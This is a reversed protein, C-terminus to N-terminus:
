NRVLEVRLRKAIVKGDDDEYDGEEAVTEFGLLKTIKHSPGNEPVHAILKKAGSALEKEVIERLFNEGFYFKQLIPDINMAGLYREGEPLEKQGDFSSSRMFGVLNDLSKQPDNKNEKDFYVLHFRPNHKKHTEFDSLLRDQDEKSKHEISSRYMERLKEFLVENEALEKGGVTEMEVGKIGSVNQEAGAKKTAILLSAIIEIDMRSKELDSLLKQIKEESAQTGNELETSFKLIIQHAKRLLETQLNNPLDKESDKLIIRALEANEQEVLDVLQAIKQFILNASEKPLNEGISIIRNGNNEDLELSLFAKMRNSIEERAKGANVFEGTKDVDAKKHEKIYRLFQYQNRLGYDALEIGLDQSIKNCFPISELLKFLALDEIPNKFKILDKIKSPVKLSLNVSGINKSQYDQWGILNGRISYVGVTEPAINRALYDAQPKAEISHMIQSPAGYDRSEYNLKNIMEFDFEFNVVDFRDDHKSFIDESDDIGSKEEYEDVYWNELQVNTSYISHAFTRIFYSQNEDASIQKLFLKVKKILEPNEEDRVASEGIDGIIKVLKIKELASEAKSFNAIIKELNEQKTLFKELDYIGARDLQKCLADYNQNDSYEFEQWGILNGEKDIYNKLLIEIIKDNSDIETKEKKEPNLKGKNIKVFGGVDPGRFMINDRLNIKNNGLKDYFNPFLFPCSNNTTFMRQGM